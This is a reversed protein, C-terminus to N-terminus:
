TSRIRPDLVRPESDSGCRRRASATAASYWCARRLTGTKPREARETLMSRHGRLAIGRPGHLDAGHGEAGGVVDGDLAHARGAGLVDVGGDLLRLGDAVGAAGQDPDRHVVRLVHLRQRLDAALSGGVEHDVQLLVVAEGGLHSGVHVLHAVVGAVEVVVLLLLRDRLLDAEQDVDGAGVVARQPDADVAAADVRDRGGAMGLVVDRGHDFGRELVAAQQVVEAEVAVHHRQLVRVRALDDLGVGAERRQAGVDGQVQADGLGANRRFADDLRAHGELLQEGAADAVGDAHAEGKGVRALVLFDRDAPRMRASMAAPRNRETGTKSSSLSFMM